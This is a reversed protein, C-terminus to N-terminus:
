VCLPQTFCASSEWISRQAEADRRRFRMGRAAIIAALTAISELHDREPDDEKTGYRVIKVSCKRSLIAVPTDNFLLIGAVSPEWTKRDVSNQNLAFELPDSKPSYESLFRGLEAGESIEETAATSVVQDEFSARGDRVALESHTSLLTVM